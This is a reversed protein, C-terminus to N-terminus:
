KERDLGLKYEIITPQVIRYDKYMPRKNLGLLNKTYYIRPYM